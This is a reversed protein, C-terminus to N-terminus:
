GRKKDLLDENTLNDLLQRIEQRIAQRDKRMRWLRKLVKRKPMNVRIKKKDLKLDEYQLKFSDLTAM